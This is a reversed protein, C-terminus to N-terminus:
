KEQGEDEAPTYTRGDLMVRKATYGARRVTDALHEATVASGPKLEVAVRGTNLDIEVKKVGDVREVSRQM